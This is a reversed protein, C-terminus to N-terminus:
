DKEFSIILEVRTGNAKDNQDKLDIYKEEFSVKNIESLIEMREKTLQIISGM